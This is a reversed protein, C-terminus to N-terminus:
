PPQEFCTRDAGRLSATTDPDAGPIRIQASHAAGAGACAAATAIHGAASRRRSRPNCALRDRAFAAPADGQMAAARRIRSKDHM